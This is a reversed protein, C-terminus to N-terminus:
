GTDGKKEKLWKKIYAVAEKRNRVAGTEVGENMKRLIQGVQPGEPVRFADMVQRGTMLPAPKVKIYVGYYFRMMELVVEYLEPDEGGRTARADALALCLLMLGSEGGMARFFHGKARYSRERLSALMFVRHHNKVLLALESANKRSFRLREMVEPIRKAGESDHGIFRM